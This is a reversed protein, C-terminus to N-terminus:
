LPENTPTHHTHPPVESEPAPAPRALPEYDRIMVSMFATITEIFKDTRYDSDSDHKMQMHALMAVCAASQLHVSANQPQHLRRIIEIPAIPENTM